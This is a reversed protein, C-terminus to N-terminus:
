QQERDIMVGLGELVLHPVLRVDSPLDAALDPADGGTLWRVAGPLREHWHRLAREIGGILATRAGSAVAQATGSAALDYPAPLVQRPLGTRAHFAEVMMAPGPFIVGGLHRGDAQLADITVASGCDIVLGARGPARAWAGVLAAWRDFGLQEPQAYGCVIEGCRRTVVPVTAVMGWCARVTAELARLPEGRAVAAIAVRDPQRLTALARAFAAAPTENSWAAFGADHLAGGDRYAWKLRSHGLDLLLDV